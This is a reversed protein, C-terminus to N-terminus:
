GEEVRRSPLAQAPRHSDQEADVEAARAETAKGTTEVLREAVAGDGEKDSDVTRELPRADSASPVRGSRRARALAPM